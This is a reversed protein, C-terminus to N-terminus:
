ITEEHSVSSVVRKRINGLRDTMADDFGEIISSDCEVGSRQLHLNVVHPRVIERDGIVIEQLTKSRPRSFRRRPVLQAAPIAGVGEVDEPLDDRTQSSKM